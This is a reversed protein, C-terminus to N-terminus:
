YIENHEEQYAEFRETEREEAYAEADEDRDDIVQDRDDLYNNM